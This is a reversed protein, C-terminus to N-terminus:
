KENLEKKLPYKLHGYNCFLIHSTPVASLAICIVDKGWIQFSLFFYNRCPSPLVSVINSNSSDFVLDLIGRHIYTSCQSRQSLNFNQILPAIKAVNEPLMQDLNFHGVILIRRQSPLEIMLLIFDNIFSDVTSPARYVIVLLFTNKGIELKIPLM